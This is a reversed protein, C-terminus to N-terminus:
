NASAPSPRGASGPTWNSGTPSEWRSVPVPHTARLERLADQMQFGLSFIQDAYDAAIRGADTLQINRGNREFLECGLREQLLKIQASLTQPTVNLHVGARNIGGIRATMWFYYLHKFNM